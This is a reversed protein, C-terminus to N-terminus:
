CSKQKNSTKSNNKTPKETLLFVIMAFVIGTMAELMKKYKRAFFYQCHKKNHQNNKKDDKSFIYLGYIVMPLLIIINIITGINVNEM